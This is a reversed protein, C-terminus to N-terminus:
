DRNRTLTGVLPNCASGAREYLIYQKGLNATGEPFIQNALPQFRLTVCARDTRYHDAVVVNDVLLLQINRAQISGVPAITVKPSHIPPCQSGDDYRHRWIKGPSDEMSVELSDGKKKVDAQTM